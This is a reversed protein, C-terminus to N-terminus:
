AFNSLTRGHKQLLFAVFKTTQKAIGYLSVGNTLFM